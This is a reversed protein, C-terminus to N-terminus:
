LKAYGSDGSFLMYISLSCTGKMVMVMVMERRGPVVMDASLGVLCMGLLM